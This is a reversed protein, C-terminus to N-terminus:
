RNDLNEWSITEAVLPSHRWDAGSWGDGGNRYSCM